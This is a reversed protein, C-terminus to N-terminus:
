TVGRFLPTLSIKDRPKDLSVPPSQYDRYIMIVAVGLWLFLDLLSLVIEGRNLSRLNLISRM